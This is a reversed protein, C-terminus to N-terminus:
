QISYLSVPVAAMAIGVFPYTEDFLTQAQDTRFTTRAGTTALSSLRPVKVFSLVPTQGAVPLLLHRVNPFRHVVGELLSNQDDIGLLPIDVVEYTCVLRGDGAFQFMMKAFLPLNTRGYGRRGM